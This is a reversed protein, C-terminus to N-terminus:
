LDVGKRSGGTDDASGTNLVAARVTDAIAGNRGRDRSFHEKMKDTLGLQFIRRGVILIIVIGQFLYVVASPVSALMQMKNASSLLMGFFLASAAIGIPSHNGLYSVALGDFGLNGVWDITMRVDIVTAQIAGGLGAVGGAIAMALMQNSKIGLGAYQGVPVSMGVVRMQYGRTTRSMFIAYFVLVALAILIGAHWRTNPFLTPLVASALAPKSQALDSLPDKMVGSILFTCLHMGIYNFMMTTVVESANFTNKLFAVLMGYVAGASIGAALTLPIHIAAPLGALSTAALMGAIGGMYIQGNAGLNILGSRAAISFSLAAFLLSVSKAMTEGWGYMSTVSSTFLVRYAKIPDHGMLEIILAMIVLAIVLALLPYYVAKLMKAPLSIKKAQSM